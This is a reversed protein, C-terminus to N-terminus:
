KVVLELKVIESVICGESTASLHYVYTGAAGPAKLSRKWEGDPFGTGQVGKSPPDLAASMAMTPEIVLVEESLPDKGGAAAKATVLVEFAGGPAVQAPELRAGTLTPPAETTNPEMKIDFTVDTATELGETGYRYGPMFSHFGFKGNGPQLVLTYKGLADTVAGRQYALNAKSPDPNSVYHGGLEVGIPVGPMAASTKADLVRGSVTVARPPPQDVKSGCGAALALVIWPFWSHATM